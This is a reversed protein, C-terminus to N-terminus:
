EGVGGGREYRSALGGHGPGLDIACNLPSPSHLYLLYIRGILISQGSTGKSQHQLMQDLRVNIATLANPASRKPNQWRSMLITSCKPNAVFCLPTKKLTIKQKLTLILSLSPAHIQLLQGTNAFLFGIVDDQPHRTHLNVKIAERLDFCVNLSNIHM